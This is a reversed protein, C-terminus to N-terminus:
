ACTNNEQLCNNSIESKKTVAYFLLIRWLVNSKKTHGLQSNLRLNTYSLKTKRKGLKIKLYTQKKTQNSMPMTEM